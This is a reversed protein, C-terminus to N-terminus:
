SCRSEMNYRHTPTIALGGTNSQYNSIKKSICVAIQPTLIADRINSAENYVYARTGLDVTVWVTLVIAIWTTAKM